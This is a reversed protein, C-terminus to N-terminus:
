VLARYWSFRMRFVNLSYVHAISSVTVLLPGIEASLLTSWSVILVIWPISHYYKDSLYITM